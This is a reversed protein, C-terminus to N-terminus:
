PSQPPAALTVNTDNRDGDRYYEVKVEDGPSAELLALTLDSTTEIDTDGLRVIVDGERLGAADAPSGPLVQQILIGADVPLDLSDALGNTVEQYAIGLFGRDVTGKDLIESAVARVTEASIAFGIGQAGQITATNVGLVRGSFDLLPGGSNGPNIAADTQLLGFVQTSPDLLSREKASVVGTTVSPSLGLDLAYGIAIVPEGIRVEESNGLSLPDMDDVDSELVALDSLPDRGVLRAEFVRGDITTLIINQPNTIRNELTVVHNNTIFHGDEDYLWGSGTGQCVTGDPQCNVGVRVVSNGARAAIDPVDGPQQAAVADQNSPMGGDRPAPSDGPSDGPINDGSDSDCAVVLVAFALFLPLFAARIVRRSVSM